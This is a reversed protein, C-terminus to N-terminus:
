RAAHDQPEKVPVDVVPMLVHSPKDASHFITQRAIRVKDSSGLDEGTNPSDRICM